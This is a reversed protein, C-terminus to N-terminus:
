THLAYTTALAVGPPMGDAVLVRWTRFEEVSLDAVLDYTDGVAWMQQAQADLAQYAQRTTRGLYSTFWWPPPADTVLWWGSATREVRGRTGHAFVGVTIAEDMVFAAAERLMAVTVPAMTM